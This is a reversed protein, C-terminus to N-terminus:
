TEARSVCTIQKKGTFAMKETPTKTMELNVLM